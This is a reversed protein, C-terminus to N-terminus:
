DVLVSPTVCSGNQMIRDDLWFSVSVGTVYALQAAQYNTNAVSRSYIEADCGFSIYNGCAPVTANPNPTVRVACGGYRLADPYAPDGASRSDTLVRTITATHWGSAAIAAECAFLAVVTIIGLRSRRM